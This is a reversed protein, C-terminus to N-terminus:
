SKRLGSMALLGFAFAAAIMCLGAGITHGKAMVALGSLLAIIGSLAAGIVGVVALHEVQFKVPATPSASAVPRARPLRVERVTPNEMDEEWTEDALPATNRSMPSGCHECFQAQPNVPFGCSSCRTRASNVM